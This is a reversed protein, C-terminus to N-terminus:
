KNDCLYLNNEWDGKMQKEQLSKILKILGNEVKYHLQDVM